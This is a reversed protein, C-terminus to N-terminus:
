LHRNKTIWRRADNGALRRNGSVSSAAESQARKAQDNSRNGISPEGRPNGISRQAVVFNVPEAGQQALAALPSGEPAM